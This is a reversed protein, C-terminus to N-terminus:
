GRGGAVGAGGANGVKTMGREGVGGSGEGIEVGAGSANGEKIVGREGM